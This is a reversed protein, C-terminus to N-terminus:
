GAQTEEEPPLLLMQLVVEREAQARATDPSAYKLAFGEELLGERELSEARDAIANEIQEGLDTFFPEKDPIGAYRDPLWLAWHRSAMMGYHNM